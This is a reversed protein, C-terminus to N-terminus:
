RYGVITLLISNLLLTINEGHGLWSEFLWASTHRNRLVAHSSFWLLKWIVWDSFWFSFPLILLWYFVPSCDQLWGILAQHFPMFSIIVETSSGLKPKSSIPSKKIMEVPKSHAPPLPFWIFYGLTGDVALFNKWNFNLKIPVKLPLFIINSAMNKNWLCLCQSNVSLLLGLFFTNINPIQM